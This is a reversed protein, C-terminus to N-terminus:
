KIKWNLFFILYNKNCIAFENFFRIDFHKLSKKKKKKQLLTVDASKLSVRVDEIGPRLNEHM